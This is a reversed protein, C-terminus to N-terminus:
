CIKAGIALIEEDPSFEDFSLEDASQVAMRKLFGRKKAKKGCFGVFIDIKRGRKTFFLINIIYNKTLLPIRHFVAM